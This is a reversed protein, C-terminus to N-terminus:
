ENPLRECGFRSLFRLLFYDLSVATNRCFLSEAKVTISLLRDWNSRPSFFCKDLYKKRLLASKKMYDIRKIRGISCYNGM